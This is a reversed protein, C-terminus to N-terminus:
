CVPLSPLPPSQFGGLAFYGTALLAALAPALRDFQQGFRMQLDLPLPQVELMLGWQAQHAIKIHDIVVVQLDGVLHFFWCRALEVASAPQLAKRVM